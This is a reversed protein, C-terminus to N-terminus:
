NEVQRFTAVLEAVKIGFKRFESRNMVVGNEMLYMWDVVNLKHGGADEPLIITYTLRAVAGMVQGEAVGEIDPATATFAGNEGLTITWERQQTRGTAYKFDESMVGTDGDWTVNMVATFRSSVRGNFGYIMGETLMRGNLVENVNFIPETGAYDEVKQADFSFFRSWGWSLLAALAVGALILLIPKLM